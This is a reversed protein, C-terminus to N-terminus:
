FSGQRFGEPFRQVTQVTQAGLLTFGLLREVPATMKVVLQEFAVLRDQGIFLRDGPLLQYNTATAGGKSISAWDVPLIQQCTSDHPAPRAIWIKKTNSIRQVGQVQAMADLVTENGTVPIRFVNDGFGAGQMIIYYFKSNYAFVSLSVVPDELYEDLVDKIAARAEDVTSGSVYVSGFKGLNIQGDPGVLHEGVIAQRGSVQLLTVSVRPFSLEERELHKQISDAAEEPTKGVVKVYGYSPGLNVTGNPEVQFTGAIPEEPLTGSAVVQLIDLSQIFYPSKPAMRVEQILLIDPPEIRYPPLSVKNLESPPLMRVQDTVELEVPQGAEDFVLNNAITEDAALGTTVATPNSLMFSDTSLSTCGVCLLGSALLCAVSHAWRLARPIRGSSRQKFCRTDTM